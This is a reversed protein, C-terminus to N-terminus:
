RDRESIRSLKRVENSRSIISLTVLGDLGSSSPSILFFNRLFHFDRSLFSSLVKILQDVENFLVIVVIPSLHDVEM